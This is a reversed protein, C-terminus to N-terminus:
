RPPRYNQFEIGAEIGCKRMLSPRRVFAALGFGVIEVRGKAHAEVIASRTAHSMAFVQQWAQLALAPGVIEAGNKAPHLRLCEALDAARTKRWSLLVDM